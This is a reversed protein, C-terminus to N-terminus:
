VKFKEALAPVLADIDGAGATILGQSTDEQQAYSYCSFLGCILPLFLKIVKM